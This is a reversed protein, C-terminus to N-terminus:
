RYLAKVGELNMEDTAVTANASLHNLINEMLAAGEPHLDNERVWDQDTTYILDGDGYAPSTFIFGFYNGGYELFPEITSDGTGACGYWFYYLIPVSNPISALYGNVAMPALDGEVTGSSSFSGGMSNVIEAFAMNSSYDCLYEGQLYVPGTEQMFQMITQVSQAPLDIVGSSVILIDTGSLNAIDDLTSQAVVTAVHGMATALAEWEVDMDHGGNISQSEIITINHSVDLAASPSWSNVVQVSSGETPPVAAEDALAVLSTVLILSMSLTFVLNRKMENGGIHFYRGDSFARIASGFLLEQIFGVM